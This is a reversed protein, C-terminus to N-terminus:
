PSSPVPGHFCSKERLSTLITETPSEDHDPLEEPDTLKEWLKGEEVTLLHQTKSMAVQNDTPDVSELSGRITGHVLSSIAAPETQVDSPDV